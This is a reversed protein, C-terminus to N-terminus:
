ACPELELFSGTAEKVSDTQQKLEKIKSDFIKKRAAAKAEASKKKDCPKSVPSPVASTANTSNVEKAVKGEEAAAKEEAKKEEAAIEADTKVVPAPAPCPASMNKVVPGAVTKSRPKPM